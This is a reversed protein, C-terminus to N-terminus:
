LLYTLKLKKMYSAKEPLRAIIKSIIMLFAEIIKLTTQGYGM